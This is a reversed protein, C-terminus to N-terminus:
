DDFAEDSDGYWDDWGVDDTEWEYTDDYAGFDYDDFDDDYADTGYEYGYVNAPYTNGGHDDDPGLLAKAQRIEAWYEDSDIEGSALDNAAQRVESRYEQVDGTVRDERDTVSDLWQEDTQYPATEVNSREQAQLAVTPGLAVAGAAMLATLARRKFPNSMKM